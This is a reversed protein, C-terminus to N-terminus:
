WMTSTQSKTTPGTGIRSTAASVKAYNALRTTGDPLSTAVQAQLTFSVTAGPALDALAWAYVGGGLAAPTVGANDAVYTLYAPLTDTVVVGTAAIDGQNEISLVYNLVEGPQASTKGDSKTILLDATSLALDQVTPGSDLITPAAVADQYGKLSVTVTAPGATLPCAAGATFHYGDAGSTATCTTTGQTLTVVAGVLIVGSEHDTVIGSLSPLVLSLNGINATGAM